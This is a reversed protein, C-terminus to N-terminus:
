RPRVRRSGWASSSGSQARRLARRLPLAGALALWALVTPEPVTAVPGLSLTGPGTAQFRMGLSDIRTFDAGPGSIPVFDAYALAHAGAGLITGGSSFTGRSCSQTGSLATGTCANVWLLDGFTQELVILRFADRTGGETLDVGGLEGDFPDGNWTLQMLAQGDGEQTYTLAGGEARATVPVGETSDQLTLGRTGGLISSASVRSGDNEGALTISLEQFATFADVTLASAPAAAHFAAALLGPIIARM